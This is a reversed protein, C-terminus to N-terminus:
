NLMEFLNSGMNFKVVNRAAIKIEKGTKPNRGKRAKRKKKKWTGFGILRVEQGKKLAGSIADFTHNVITLCKSKPLSTKSSLYSSLDQKNM